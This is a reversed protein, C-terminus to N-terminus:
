PGGFWGLAKLLDTESSWEGPRTGPGWTSPSDPDQGNKWTMSVLPLDGDKVVVEAGAYLEGEVTLTRLEVATREAAQKSRSLACAKESLSGDAGLRAGVALLIVDDKNTKPWYDAAYVDGLCRTVTRYAPDDALSLEPIVPPLAPTMQDRDRAIFMSRSVEYVTDEGPKELRTGGDISRSRYGQRKLARKVAEPDFEGAVRSFDPDQVATVANFMDTEDFGWADRDPRRQSYTAEFPPFGYDDFARYLGEDKALLDRVVTTDVYRFAEKNSSEPLADLANM